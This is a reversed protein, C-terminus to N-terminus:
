GGARQRDEAAQEALRELDRDPAEEVGIVTNGADTARILEDLKRQIAAVQRSQTHQIVFVMVFTVAGTTSYLGVEWWHPFHAVVGEAIWLGVVIGAAVGAMSHAVIAGLRHLVRSSAQRDARTGFLGERWHREELM